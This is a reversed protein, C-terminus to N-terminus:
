MQTEASVILNFGGMFFGNGLEELKTEVSILFGVRVMTSHHAHRMM